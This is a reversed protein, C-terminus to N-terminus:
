QIPKHKGSHSFLYLLCSQVYKKRPRMAFTNWKNKKKHALHQPWTIRCLDSRVSQHSTNLPFIFVFLELKTKHLRDFIYTIDPLWPSHYRYYYYYYYNEFVQILSKFLLYSSHIFGDLGRCSSFWTPYKFDQLCLVQYWELQYKKM